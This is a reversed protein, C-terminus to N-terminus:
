QTPLLGDSEELTRKQVDSPSKQQWVPWYELYKQRVSQQNAQFWQLSEPSNEVRKTNKLWKSFDDSGTHFEADPNNKIPWLSFRAKWLGMRPTAIGFYNKGPALNAEMFDAAESVVMFTHKGPQTVYTLKQANNLIGIFKIKGDTVDYVSASIVSGVISSRMFVVQTEDKTPAQLTQQPSITMKTSACGTVFIIMTLTLIRLIM